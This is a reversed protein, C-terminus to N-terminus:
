LDGKLIDIDNFMFRLKNITKDTHFHGCYWRKYSITKEIRDLWQETSSDVTSEDVSSLFVERPQYSLPCTHSLVIDIPHTALQQEVYAKTKDDPQEDSFWKWGRKLRYDKDVSYAGGIVICAYNDFTYIEGDKAFLINPFAEEVYVTGGRYQKTTYSSITKPRKEHNGHISFTTFPFSNVLLKAANDKKGGYYNIGADGLIIMVDDHTPHFRDIFPIFRSFDGHTDGTIYIM